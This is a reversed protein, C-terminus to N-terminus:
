SGGIRRELEKEFLQTANEEAEKIHPYAKAHGVKKGSVKVDHGYELLHPLGPLANYIVTESGTRTKTTKTKWSKAYKGTQSPSSSKLEKVAAKAATKQAEMIDEPLAGAFADLEAMVVKDLNKVEAKQM